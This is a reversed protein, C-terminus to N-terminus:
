AQVPSAAAAARSQWIVLAGSFLAWLGLPADGIFFLADYGSPALAVVPGAFGFVVGGVIGFVAIWWNGWRHTIAGRVTVATLGWGLLPTYIAQLVVHTDFLPTPGGSALAGAESTMAIHFGMEVLSIAAGVFAVWVFIYLLRDGRIRGTWLMAFLGATLVVIAVALVAHTYDWKGSDALLDAELSRFNQSLPGRPHIQGAIFVLLGGVGFLVAAWRTTRRTKTMM